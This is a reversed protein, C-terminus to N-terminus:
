LECGIFLILSVFECVPATLAPRVEEAFRFPVFWSEPKSRVDLANIQKM